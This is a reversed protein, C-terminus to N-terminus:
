LCLCQSPHWLARPNRKPHPPSHCPFTLPHSPTVPSVTMCVFGNLVGQDEDDDDYSHDEWEEDEYSDYGEEHERMRAMFDVFTGKM